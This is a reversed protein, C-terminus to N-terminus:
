GDKNIKWVCKLKNKNISLSPLAHYHAGFTNQPNINASLIKIDGKKNREAIMSYVGFIIFKTM